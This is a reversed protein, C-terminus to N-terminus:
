KVIYYIIIIKGNPRLSNKTRNSICTCYHNKVLALLLLIIYIYIATVSSFEYRTPLYGSYYGVATVVIIVIIIIIITFVIIFSTQISVTRLTRHLYRPSATCNICMYARLIISMVYPNLADNPKTYSNVGIIKTYYVDFVCVNHVGVLQGDYRVIM